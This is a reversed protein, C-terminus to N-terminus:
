MPRSRPPQDKIKDTAMLLGVESRASASGGTGEGFFVQDTDDHVYHDQETLASGTPSLRSSRPRTARAMTAGLGLCRSPASRDFRIEAGEYSPAAAREITNSIGLGLQCAVRRARAAPFGTADAMQACTWTRRSSAAPRLSTLGTKVCPTPSRIPPPAARGSRGLSIPQSISWREIVYGGGRRQRSLRVPNPTPSCAPSTPMCHRRRTSARSRALNGIFSQSGVQYLGPAAITKVACPSFQRGPGARAEADTVHRTGARRVSVIGLAHLDVEGATGTVQPSCV